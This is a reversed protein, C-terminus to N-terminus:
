TLFLRHERFRAELCNASQVSRKEFPGAHKELNALIEKLATSTSGKPDTVALPLQGLRHQTVTPDSEIEGLYYLKVGAYRKAVEALKDFTRTGQGRRAVRNVIVSFVVNEMLTAVCKIV